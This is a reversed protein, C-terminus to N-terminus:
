DTPSDHDSSVVPVRPGPAMPPIGLHEAVRDDSRQHHDAWQSMGGAWRKLEKLDEGQAEVHEGIRKGHNTRVDRKTSVSAWAAIGAATITAFGTVLVGSDM